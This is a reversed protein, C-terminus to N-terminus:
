AGSELQENDREIQKVMNAIKFVWDLMEVPQEDTETITWGFEKACLYYM